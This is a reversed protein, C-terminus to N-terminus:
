LKEKIDDFSLPKIDNVHLITVIDLLINCIQHLKYMTYLPCIIFILGIVFYLTDM